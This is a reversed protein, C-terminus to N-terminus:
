WFYVSLLLLRNTLLTMLFPPEKRVGDGQFLALLIVSPVLHLQYPQHLQHPQYFGSLQDVEDVGM